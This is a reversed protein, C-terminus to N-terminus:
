LRSRAERTREILITCAEKSPILCTRLVYMLVRHNDTAEYLHRIGDSAYWQMGSCALHMRPREIQSVM